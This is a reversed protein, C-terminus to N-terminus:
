KSDSYRKLGPRPILRLTSRMRNICLLQEEEDNFEYTDSFDMDADKDAPPEMWAEKRLRAGDKRVAYALARYARAVPPSQLELWSEHFNIDRQVDNIAAGLEKRTATSSDPRRRIRYPLDKYNSIATLARAYETRRSELLKLRTTLYYGISAATAAVIAALVAAWPQSM